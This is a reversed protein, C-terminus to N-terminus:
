GRPPAGSFRSTLAAVLSQGSLDTLEIRDRGAQYLWAHRGSPELVLFTASPITALLPLASADTEDGQLGLLVLEPAKSRLREALRTRTRLTAILDLPLHPELVSTVLGVLLPSATVVVTRVGPM